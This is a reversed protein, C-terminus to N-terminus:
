SHVPLEKNLQIYHSNKRLFKKEVLHWLALACIMTTVVTVALMALPTSKFIHTAIWFQLIPFHLIYIGYSFDGYKSFRGLSPFVTAFYIVFVGIAIPELVPWLGYSVLKSKFIYCIVAFLVLHRSHFSLPKFYYYCTAGVIFFTLQGPLQRQLEIYVGGGSVQAIHLMSFTYLVSLLYLAILMPIRKFKNFGFVIIPVLLYFMVEVKITWLAGNVAQLSNSTFVNPLNPAVFNLFSLNFFYYKVIQIFSSANLQNVYLNYLLGLLTCLSVIVFYAPYIRRIRKKFYTATNESSEYSMFILFGSIVFFGKVAFESSLYNHFIDFSALGSLASAHVLMVISALAFRILDFNNQSTNKYSFLEKHNHM